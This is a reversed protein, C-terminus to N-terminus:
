KVHLVRLLFYPSRDEERLRQCEEEMEQLRARGTNGASTCSPARSNMYEWYVVRGGNPVHSGLMDFVGDASEQSMYEFINSLALKSPKERGTNSLYEELAGSHVVVRDVLGQAFYNL